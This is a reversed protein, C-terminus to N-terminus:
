FDPVVMSTKRTLLHIFVMAIPADVVSANVSGSHSWVSFACLVSQHTHALFHAHSPIYLTEGCWDFIRNSVM